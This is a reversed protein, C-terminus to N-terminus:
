TRLALNRVEDTVVAFGRVQEGARAAEIAANLALLKTHEAIAKIADLFRKISETEYALTAVADSTSNLELTVGKSNRASQKENPM